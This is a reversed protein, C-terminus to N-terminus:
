RRAIDDQIAEFFRNTARQSELDSIHSKLTDIAAGAVESAIGTPGVWGKVLAKSIAAGLGILATSIPM